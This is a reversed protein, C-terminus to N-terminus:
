KTEVKGRQTPTSKQKRKATDARVRALAVSHRAYVHARRNFDTDEIYVGIRKMIKDTPM